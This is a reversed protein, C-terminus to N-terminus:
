NALARSKYDRPRQNSDSLLSMKSFDAPQLAPTLFPHNGSHGFPASQLDATKRSRHNSDMVVWEFCFFCLKRFRKNKHSIGDFLYAFFCRRRLNKRRFYSLQYLVLRGLQPDRTQAGNEAGLILKIAQQILETTSCKRPLSSTRLEVRLYLEM